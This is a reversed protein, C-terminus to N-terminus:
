AAALAQTRARLHNVDVDFVDVAATKELHVALKWATAAASIDFNTLAGTTGDFVRVGDVYIKPTAPARLDIWVEVPAGAVFVLTSDVAAVTTVGDKSQMLLSLDNGDIHLFLHKAIADGDTAHTADAIGINFDQAGGAGGSVVNVRAEIIPKAATSFSEESFADVKQAENTASLIFKTAGGMRKPRGFGEAAATGVTVTTFPDRALDLTYYPQDNLEVLMTTDTSLYDGVATGVYFDRSNAARKFTCTRLAFTMYVKGGDLICIAAKPVRVRGKTRWNVQDNTEFPKLGDAYAAKGNPLQGLTGGNLAVLTKIQREDEATELAAETTM